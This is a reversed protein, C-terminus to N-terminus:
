LPANKNKRGRWTPTLAHCNCCLIKLNQENNNTRDGDIHEIEIPIPNGLWESLLCRECTHGRQEILHPRLSNIRTYGSWDKLQQGKNWATGKWHSCDVKIRQLKRKMNVYNGGVCRLGLKTLLQSMCTVELAAKIIDTDNYKRYQRPM